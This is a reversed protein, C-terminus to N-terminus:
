KSYFENVKKLNIDFQKTMAACWSAYTNTRKNIFEYLNNINMFGEYLYTSSALIIDVMDRTEEDAAEKLDLTVDYYTPRVTNYSEIAMAELIIGTEELQANTTPIYSLHAINAARSFYQGQAEDMMPYPVVGIDFESDRNQAIGTIFNDDMLIRGDLFMKKDTNYTKMNIWTNVGDYLEILKDVIKVHDENVMALVPAGDEDQLLTKGGLGMYAAYLMEWGWGSFGLRDFDTDWVTDGNLDAYGQKVIEMMKDATWTMNYVDEYPYDIGLDDFLAKNFLICNTSNYTVLNIDGGATYLKGYFGINKTGESNWYPRELNIHELTNWDIFFDRLVLAPMGAHQLAEFMHYTTDGSMILTRIKQANNESGPEAEFMNFKLNYAEEIAINRQFVADNVLDGTEETAIMYGMSGDVGYIGFEQQNFDLEPLQDITYEYKAEESVGTQVTTENAGKNCSVLIPSLVLVFALLLAIKKM